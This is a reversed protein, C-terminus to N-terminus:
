WQGVVYNSSASLQKYLSAEKGARSRRGTFYESARRAPDSKHQILSLLPGPHVEQGRHCDQPGPQDHRGAPPRGAPGPRGHLRSLGRVGASM